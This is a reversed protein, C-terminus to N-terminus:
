DKVKRFIFATAIGFIVFHAVWISTELAAIANSIFLNNFSEMSINTTVIAFISVFFGFKAGSLNSSTDDGFKKYGYYFAAGVILSNIVNLFTNMHEPNNMEPYSLNGGFFEAGGLGLYITIAFAFQYVVSFLALTILKKM